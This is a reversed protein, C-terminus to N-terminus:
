ILGLQFAKLIAKSRSNIKLANYIGKIHSNITNISLYLESSILKSSKGESLKQMVILQMNSLRNQKPISHIRNSPSILNLRRNILSQLQLSTNENFEALFEKSPCYSFGMSGSSLISTLDHAVNRVQIKDRLDEELIISDATLLLIAKIYLDLSNEITIILKINSYLEKIRLIVSVGDNPSNLARPIIILKPNNTRIEDDLRDFSSKLIIDINSDEEHIQDILENMESRISYVLIVKRKM